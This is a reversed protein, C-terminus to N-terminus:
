VSNLAQADAHPPVILIGLRPTNAVVWTIVAIIAAIVISTIAVGLYGHEAPNMFPYPYWHVM